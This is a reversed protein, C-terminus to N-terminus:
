PYAISITTRTKLLHLLRREAQWGAFLERGAQAKLHDLDQAALRKTIRDCLYNVCIDHRALLRCGSEGLFLCCAEHTRDMPIERGLLLNILLHPLGYWDEIGAGCCGGPERVACGSCDAFTGLEEMLHGTSHIEKEYETLLLGLEPDALLGAGHDRFISEALHILDECRKGGQGTKRESARDM